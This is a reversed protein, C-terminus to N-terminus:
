HAANVVVDRSERALLPPSSLGSLSAPVPTRSPPHARARLDDFASCLGERTSVIQRWGARRLKRNDFHHGRWVTATRYPTLIQPTRGRSRTHIEEAWKSLLM